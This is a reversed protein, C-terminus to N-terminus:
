IFLNWAAFALYFGIGLILCAASALSLRTAAPSIKWKPEHHSQVAQDIQEILKKRCDIAQLYSLVIAILSAAMLAWAIVLLPMTGPQPDPVIQNLFGASIGLSGSALSLITKDFDESNKQYEQRLVDRYQLLQSKRQESLGKM